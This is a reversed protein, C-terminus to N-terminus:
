YEFGFAQSAIELIKFKVRYSGKDGTILEYQDKTLGVSISGDDYELSSYTCLPPYLVCWWNQGEGKGLVVRVSTYEGAPLRFTGYDRTPYSEKGIEIKAEYDMGEKRLVENALHVIEASDNEVLRVASALSTPSYEKMKENVADRVRLKVAQDDDSDSNAIVHLRLTSDYIKCEEYSPIFSLLSVFIVISLVLSFLAKM